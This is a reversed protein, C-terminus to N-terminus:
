NDTRIQKKYAFILMNQTCIVKRNACILMTHTCALMINKCIRHVCYALKLSCNKKLIMELAEYMGSAKVFVM